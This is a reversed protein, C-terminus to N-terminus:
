LNISASNRKLSKIISQYKKIEVPNVVRQFYMEDIPLVRKQANNRPQQKATTTQDEIEAKPQNRALGKRKGDKPRPHWIILRLKHAM